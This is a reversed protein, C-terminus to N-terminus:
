AFSQRFFTRTTAEIREQASLKKAISCILAKTTQISIEMARTIQANSMGEVLLRLAEREQNSLALRNSVVPNNATESFVHLARLAVRPDLWLCGECVCKVAEVLRDSMIDKLCYANAGAALAQMVEEESEHSTLILIKLDPYQNRIQRTLELGDMDPLGIDLIVMEPHLTEILQLGQLATDGEGVVKLGEDGDLVTRIGIRILKYDEILVLRKKEVGQRFTEQEM